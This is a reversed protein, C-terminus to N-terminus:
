TMHLNSLYIYAILNKNEKIYEIKKTRKFVNLIDNSDKSILYSIRSKYEELSQYKERNVRLENNAKQDSYISYSFDATIISIILAVFAIWNKKVM